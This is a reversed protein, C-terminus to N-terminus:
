RQTPSSAKSKEIRISHTSTQNGSSTRCPQGVAAKCSTCAVPYKRRMIAAQADLRAQRMIAHSITHHVRSLADPVNHAPAWKRSGRNDPTQIRFHVGGLTRHYVEGVWGPARPDAVTYVVGDSTKKVPYRGHHAPLPM